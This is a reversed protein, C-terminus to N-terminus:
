DELDSLTIQEKEIKEDIKILQQDYQLIRRDMASNARAVQRGLARARQSMKEELADIQKLQELYKVADATKAAETVAAASVTGAGGPTRARGAGFEGPLGAPSGELAALIKTLLEEVQGAM